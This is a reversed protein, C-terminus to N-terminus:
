RSAEILTDLTPRNTRNTSLAICARIVDSRDVRHEEAIADLVTLGSPSLRVSTSKRPEKPMDSLTARKHGAHHTQTM